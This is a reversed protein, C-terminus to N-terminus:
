WYKINEELKKISKMDTATTFQLEPISLTGMDKTYMCIKLTYMHICVYNVYMYGRIIVGWSVIYFVELVGSCCQWTGKLHTRGGELKTDAKCTCISKFKTYISDNMVYEKAETKWEVNQWHSKNRRNLTVLLQNKKPARWRQKKISAYYYKQWM